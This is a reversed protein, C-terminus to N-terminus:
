AMDAYLFCCSAGSAGERHMRKLADIVHQIEAVAHGDRGTARVLRFKEQRISYALSSIDEPAPHGSPHGDMRMKMLLKLTYIRTCVDPFSHAKVHQLIYWLSASVDDAVSQGSLDNM